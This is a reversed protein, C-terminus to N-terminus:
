GGYMCAPLAGTFGCMFTVNSVITNTQSLATEYAAATCTQNQAVPNEYDAAYVPGINHPSEQLFYSM